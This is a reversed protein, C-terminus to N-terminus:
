NLNGLNNEALVIINKHSVPEVFQAVQNKEISYNKAILQHQLKEELRLTLAAQTKQNWDILTNQAQASSVSETMSVEDAFVSQMNLSTALIVSLTIIKNLKLM